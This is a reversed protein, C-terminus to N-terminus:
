VLCKSFGIANRVSGPAQNKGISVPEGDVCNSFTVRHFLDVVIQFGNPMSPLCRRRDAANGVVVGVGM